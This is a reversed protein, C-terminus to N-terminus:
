RVQNQLLVIYVPLQNFTKSISLPAFLPKVLMLPDTTFIWCSLWTLSTTHRSPVSLQQLLQIPLPARCLLSTIIEKYQHLDRWNNELPIVSYSNYICIISLGLFFKMIIYLHTINMHTDQQVFSKCCYQADM